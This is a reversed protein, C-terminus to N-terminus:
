NLLLGACVCMGFMTDALASTDCENHEAYDTVTVKMGHGTNGVSDSKLQPPSQGAPTGYFM